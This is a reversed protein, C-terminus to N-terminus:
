HQISGSHYRVSPKFGMFPAETAKWRFKMTPCIPNIKSSWRRSLISTRAAEQLPLRSLISFLVEDPLESIQDALQDKNRKCLLLNGKGVPYSSPKRKVM